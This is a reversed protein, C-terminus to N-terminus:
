QQGHRRSAREFRVVANTESEKEKISGVCNLMWGDHCVSNGKIGKM